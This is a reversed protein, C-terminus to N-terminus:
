CATVKLCFGSRKNSLKDSNNHLLKKFNGYFCDDKQQVSHILTNFNRKQCKVRWSITISQESLLPKLITKHLISGNKWKNEIVGHYVKNPASPVSANATGQINNMLEATTYYNKTERQNCFLKNQNGTIQFINEKWSCDTYPCNGLQATGSQCKGSPLDRVSVEGVSMEGFPCNGSQGSGRCLSGRCSM